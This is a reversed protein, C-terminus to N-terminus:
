ERRGTGPRIRLLGSVGMMRGKVVYDYAGGSANKGQATLIKYFYGHYPVAKGREQPSFSAPCAGAILPGMPGPPNDGKGEEWCLGNKKGPDSLFQRAYEAGGTGQHERAYERQADVYALCVQVASLEDRGIRRALIESRGEKTDFQWTGGVKIMPIPMPWDDRGSTFSLKEVTSKNLGTKKSTLMLFLREGRRTWTPDGSYVLDRGSPGFISILEGADDRDCRM